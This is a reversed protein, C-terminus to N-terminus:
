WKPYREDPNYPVFESIDDEPIVEEVEVDHMTLSAYPKDYIKPKNWKELFEAIESDTGFVYGVVREQGIPDGFGGDVEFIHKVAWLKKEM